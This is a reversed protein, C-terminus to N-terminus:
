SISIPSSGSRWPTDANPTVVAKDQPTFLRAECSSQNFPGKCDDNEQDIAYAYMTKYGMVMPFGYIYADRAIAQAEELSMNVATEASNTGTPTTKPPECGFMTALVVTALLLRIIKMVIGQRALV